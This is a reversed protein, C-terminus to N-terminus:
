VKSPRVTMWAFMAMSTYYGTYGLVACSTSGQPIPANYVILLYSTVLFISSVNSVVIKGHLNFLDPVTVYVILTVLLFVLSIVGLVTFIVLLHSSQTNLCEEKVETTNSEPKLCRLVFTGLSGDQHLMHEICYGNTLGYGQHELMGGEVLRWEDTTDLMYLDSCNEVRHNVVDDLFNAAIALGAVEQTSLAVLQGNEDKFPKYAASPQWINGPDTEECSKTKAVFAESLGCCKVITGSGDELLVALILALLMTRVLRPSASCALFSTTAPLDGSLVKELNWHVTHGRVM